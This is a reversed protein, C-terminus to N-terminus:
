DIEKVTLSGYAFYRVDGNPMEDKLDYKNNGVPWTDVENPDMKITVPMSNVLTSYEELVTGDKSKITMVLTHGTLDVDQGAKDKLGTITLSFTEGRLVLFSHHKAM